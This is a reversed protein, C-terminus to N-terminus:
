VHRILGSLFIRGPITRHVPGTACGSPVYEAHQLLPSSKTSDPLPIRPQVPRSFALVTLRNHFQHLSLDHYLFFSAVLIKVIVVIQPLIDVTETVTQDLRQYLPPQVTPEVCFLIPTECCGAESRSHGGPNQACAPTRTNVWIGITSFKRRISRPLGTTRSM